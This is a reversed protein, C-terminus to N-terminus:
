AVGGASGFVTQHVDLEADDADRFRRRRSCAAAGCCFRRTSIRKAWRTSSRSTSRTSWRPRAQYPPNAVVLDYAGEKLSRVFRVGAALQEGKLKLGLDDGHSHAHLFLELRSLMTAKAEEVGTSLRRDKRDESPPDGQARESRNLFLECNALAKDM